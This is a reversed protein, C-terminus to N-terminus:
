DNVIEAFTVMRSPLVANPLTDHVNGSPSITRPSRCFSTADQSNFPVDRSGPGDNISNLISSWEKESQSSMNM